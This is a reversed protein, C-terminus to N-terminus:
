SLRPILGIFSVDLIGLEYLKKVEKGMIERLTRQDLIRIFRDFTWYSLLLKTIDFSFYYAILLNCNLFDM